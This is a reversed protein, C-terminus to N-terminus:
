TIKYTSLGQFKTIELVNKTRRIITYRSNVSKYFRFILGM